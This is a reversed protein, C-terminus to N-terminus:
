QLGKRHSTDFHIRATRRALSQFRPSCLQANRRTPSDYPVRLDVNRDLAHVWISPLHM